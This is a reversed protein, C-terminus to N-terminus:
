EGELTGAKRAAAEVRQTTMIEQGTATEIAAILQGLLVSMTKATTFSMNLLCVPKGNLQLVSTIDSTGAANQFGNFYFAPVDANVLTAFDALPEQDTSEPM